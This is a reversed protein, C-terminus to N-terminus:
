SKIVPASGSLGALDEAGDAGTPPEATTVDGQEVKTQATKRQGTKIRRWIRRGVLLALAAAATGTLVLTITGYATSQVLLRSTGGLRTGKPTTLWADVGFQGSRLVEASIKVTKRSNSPLQEVAVEDTKLGFTNSLVVKVNVLVPLKNWITVLLPSKDSALSYPTSPQVVTIGNQLETLDQDVQSATREAGAPDGRWAGSAARLLATRVPDMLQDPGKNTAPDLEMASELAQITTHSAQIETIVQPQVEAAAATPPYSVTVGSQSPPAAYLEALPKPVAAQKSFLFQVSQLYQDYETSSQAFVWPPTVIMTGGAIGGQEFWSRFALAGLADQSGMGLPSSFAGSQLPDLRLAIPGNDGDASSGLLKVPQANEPKASLTHPDLLLAKTGSNILSTLTRGDLQGNIPWLFSPLPQAGLIRNIEGSMSVAKALLDNLGARSLAVLDADAAPIPVVCHSKAQEGLKALWATAAAKGTGPAPGEPTRFQYGKAMQSVTSLLDPDIALCLASGVPSGAGANTEVAKVLNFLRGGSALSTALSDDALLLQDGLANSLRKPQESIPWLLTLGPGPTTKPKVDAPNSGPLGLVPLLFSRAGVRAPGGFDPTANVNVLLPYVGPNALRLSDAGAGQFKVELTVQKREGPQLEGQVRTFRTTVSETGQSSGVADRLSDESTLANGREIRVNIDSLERDSTNIIDASVTLHDGSEPTVLTPGLSTVNVQARFQPEVPQASLPGATAAASLAIVGLLAGGRALLRRSYPPISSLKM